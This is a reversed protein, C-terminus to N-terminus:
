SHKNHNKMIFVQFCFYQCKLLCWFGKSTKNFNWIKSRWEWINVLLYTPTSSQLTKYLCGCPKKQFHDSSRVSFLVSHSPHHKGVELQHIRKKKQIILPDNAKFAQIKKELMHKKKHQTSICLCEVLSSDDGATETVKHLNLNIMKHQKQNHCESFM